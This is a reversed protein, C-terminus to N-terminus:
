HKTLLTQEKKISKKSAPMGVFFTKVFSYSSLSSAFIYIYFSSKKETHLLKQKM